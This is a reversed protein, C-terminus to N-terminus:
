DFFIKNKTLRIKEKFYLKTGAGLFIVIASILWIIGKNRKGEQISGTIISHEKLFQKRTNYSAKSTNQITISNLLLQPTITNTSATKTKSTTSIIPNNNTTKEKIILSIVRKKQTQKGSRSSSIQNSSNSFNNAALATGNIIYSSSQIANGFFASANGINSYSLASSTGAGRMTGNNISYNQSSAAYVNTSGILTLFSIIILYKM